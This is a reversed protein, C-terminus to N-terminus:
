EGLIKPNSATPITSDIPFFTDINLSIETDRPQPLDIDYAKFHNGEGLNFPQEFGLAKM